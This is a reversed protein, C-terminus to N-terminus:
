LEIPGLRLEHLEPLDRRIEVAERFVGIHSSLLYSCDSSDTIRM